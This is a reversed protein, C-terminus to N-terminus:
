NNAALATRAKELDGSAGTAARNVVEPPWNRVSTLFWYSEFAGELNVFSPRGQDDPSLSGRTKEILAKAAECDAVFSPAIVGDKVDGRVKVLADFVPQVAAKYTADKNDCGSLLVALVIVLTARM